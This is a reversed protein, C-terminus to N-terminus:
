DESSNTDTMYDYDKVTTEYLKNYYPMILNLREELYFKWLGVTELGIEKNFYHMLIKKELIPRYDENWIPFNFNFIIPCALEIRKSIPLSDNGSTAQEIIWRVQTTYKSM